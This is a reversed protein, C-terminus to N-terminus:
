GVDTVFDGPDSADADRGNGDNAFPTPSVFDFGDLLKGGQVLRLLDPHDFRVGTDLVAVVTANSGVTVDWAHEARTAASEVSQFYWQDAFLPDAPVAHPWRREDAVAYEVNPDEAMRDLLTRVDNAGLARDLELVDTEVAIQQKRVLRVGASAGLKQARVGAAAATSATGDRWKVIIQTTPPQVRSARVAGNDERSQGFAAPAACILLAFGAVIGAALRRM